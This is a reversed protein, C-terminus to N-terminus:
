AVPNFKGVAPHQSTVALASSLTREKTTQASGYVAYIVMSNGKSLDYVPM